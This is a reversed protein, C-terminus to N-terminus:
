DTEMKSANNDSASISTSLGSAKLSSASEDSGGNIKPSRNIKISPRKHLSPGSLSTPSARRKSHHDEDTNIGSSGFTKGAYMAAVENEAEKEEDLIDLFGYIIALCFSISM